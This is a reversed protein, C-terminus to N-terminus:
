VANVRAVFRVAGPRPPVAPLPVVVFNMVAYVIVSYVLGCLIPRRTLVTFNFKTVASSLDFSGDRYRSLCAAAV